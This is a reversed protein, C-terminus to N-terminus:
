ACGSMGEHELGRVEFEPADAAPGHTGRGCLIGRSRWGKVPAEDRAVNVRQFRRFSPVHRDGSDAFFGRM